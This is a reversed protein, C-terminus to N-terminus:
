LLNHKFTYFKKYENENKNHLEARITFEHCDTSLTPIENKNCM